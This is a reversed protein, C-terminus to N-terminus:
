NFINNLFCDLEYRINYHLPIEKDKLYSTYESLNRFSKIKNDEFGEIFISAFLGNEDM